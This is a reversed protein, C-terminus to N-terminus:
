NNNLYKDIIDLIKYGTDPAHYYTLLENIDTKINNIIKYPNQKLTDVAM